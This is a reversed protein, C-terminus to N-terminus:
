TEWAISYVLFNKYFFNMHFEDLIKSIICNNQLKIPPAILLIWNMVISYKINFM